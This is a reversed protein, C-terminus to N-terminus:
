AHFKEKMQVVSWQEEEVFANLEVINRLTKWSNNVITIAIDVVGKSSIGLQRHILAQDIIIWKEQVM